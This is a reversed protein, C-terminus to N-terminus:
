FEVGSEVKGSFLHGKGYKAGSIQLHLLVFYGEKTNFFGGYSVNIWCLFGECCGSPCAKCILSGAAWSTQFTESSSLLLCFEKIHILSNLVCCFLKGATINLYSKFVPIKNLSYILSEKLILPRVWTVLIGAAAPLSFETRHCQWKSTSSWLPCHITGTLLM